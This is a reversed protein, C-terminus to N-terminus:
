IGALEKIRTALNDIKAKAEGEKVISCSATKVGLNCAKGLSDKSEVFLYPIKKDKCLLPLHAVIEPPDVDMAIFVLRADGREISKTTENTGKRINEPDTSVTELVTLADNELGDPQDYNVFFPKSM